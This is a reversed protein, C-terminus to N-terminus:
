GRSQRAPEPDDDQGGRPPRARCRPSRLRHGHRGAGARPRPQIERVSATKDRPEGPFHYGANRKRSPRASDKDSKGMLVVAPKVSTTSKRVEQAESLAISPSGPKREIKSPLVSSPQFAGSM